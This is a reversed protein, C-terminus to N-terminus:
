PLQVKTCVTMAGTQQDISVMIPETAATLNDCASGAVLACTYAFASIVKSMM